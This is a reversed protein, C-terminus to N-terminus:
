KEIQQNDFRETAWSCLCDKNIKKFDFSLLREFKNFEMLEKELELLFPLNRKLTDLQQGLLHKIAEIDM